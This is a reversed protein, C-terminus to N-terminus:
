KDAAEGYSAGGSVRGLTDEDLEGETLAQNVPLEATTRITEIMLDHFALANM